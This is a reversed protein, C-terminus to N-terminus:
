RYVTLAEDEPSYQVKHMVARLQDNEKQLAENKRRLSLIRSGGLTLRPALRRPKNISEEM